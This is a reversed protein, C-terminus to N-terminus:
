NNFHVHVYCYVLFMINVYRPCYYMIALSYPMPVTTDGSAATWNYMGLDNQPPQYPATTCNIASLTYMIPLTVERRDM